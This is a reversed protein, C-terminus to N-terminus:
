RGGFSMALILFTVMCLFEGHFFIRFLLMCGEGMTTLCSVIRKDSVPEAVASLVKYILTMFLYHIMPEAGVLIIVLLIVAGFSNRILMAGTLMLETVTNVANGVGPIVSATKGLLGRKLSDVVPIVMNQVVQMGVVIGTFTKLMWGTLSHLLDALKSVMEEKSLHNVFMLLIYLNACPLVISKLGWQIILVLFLVGQYFFTATSIGNSAAVTMYYAPTLGKMFDAFWTLKRELERSMESFDDTLFIFLLLYVVYFSINGVQGNGFVDTFVHFIAAFLILLTVKMILEREKNIRLFFLNYLFKQVVEKSFPIEGKMVSKLTEMISFQHDGLEGDLIEQIDDLKLEELFTEQWQAYLSEANEEGDEARVTFISCLIVIIVFLWMRKRNM